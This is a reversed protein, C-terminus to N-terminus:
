KSLAKWKAKIEEKSLTNNQKIFDLPVGNVMLNLVGLKTLQTGLTSSEKQTITEVQIGFYKFNLKEHNINTNGQGNVYFDETNTLLGVKNASEM